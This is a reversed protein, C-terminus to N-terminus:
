IGTVASFSGCLSRFLCFMLWLPIMLFFSVPLCFHPLFSFHSRLSLLPSTHTNPPPTTFSHGMATSYPIFWICQQTKTLYMGFAIETALTVSRRGYLNHKFLFCKNERVNAAERTRCVFSQTLSKKINECPSQLITLCPKLFLFHVKCCFVDAYLLLSKITSSISWEAGSSIVWHTHNENRHHLVTYRLSVSLQPM